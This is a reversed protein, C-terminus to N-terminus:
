TFSRTAENFKLSHLDTGKKPPVFSLMEVGLMYLAGLMFCVFFFEAYLTSLLFVSLM